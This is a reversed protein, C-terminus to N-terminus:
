WLAWVGNELTKIATFQGSTFEGSIFLWEPITWYGYLGDTSAGGIQLDNGAPTISYTSSSGLSADNNKYFGDVAWTSSVKYSWLYFTTSTDLIASSVLNQQSGTYTYFEIDQTSFDGQMYFRHGATPYWAMIPSLISNSSSGKAIIFGSHSSALGVNGCDFYENHSGTFVWGPQSNKVSATWVPLYTTSGHGM